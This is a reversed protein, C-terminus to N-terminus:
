ALVRRGEIVEEDEDAARIRWNSLSKSLLWENSIWNKKNRFLRNVAIRLKNCDELRTNCKPLINTKDEFNAQKWNILWHILEETELQYQM